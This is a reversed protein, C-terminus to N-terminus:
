KHFFNFTESDSPTFFELEFRPDKLLPVVFINFSLRKKSKSDIFIKRGQRTTIFDTEVHQAEQWLKRFLHNKMLRAMMDQYWQDKLISRHLSKFHLLFRLLNKQWIDPEDQPYYSKIFNQDFVMEIASPNIDFIQQIQQKNMNLIRKLNDNFLILRWCFDYLNAPYPWNELVPKVKEQVKRIEEKTPLYNGALLLYNEEEEQLNLVECIKDILERPPREELGQEIRSLRTPDKWGLALVTEVQTINKKIRYDKLLGGLSAQPVKFFVEDTLHIKEQELETLYKEGASDLLLNAEQATQIAIRKVFVKIISLLIRRDRPVREGNQWRTFLSTEYVIGEQALLDGFESLTEIESRLRYKKFLAAFSSGVSNRSM